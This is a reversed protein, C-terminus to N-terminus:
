FHSSPTIIQGNVIKENVGETGFDCINFGRKLLISLLGERLINESMFSVLNIETFIM